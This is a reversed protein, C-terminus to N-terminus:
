KKRQTSTSNQLMPSFNIIRNRGSAKAQYMAKDANAIFENMNMSRDFQCLGISLTVAPLNVDFTLAKIKETLREVIIQAAKQDAEVMILLFEEGGYRGFHDIERKNKEITSSLSKLVSDGISHGYTDNIQKFADVDMLALSLPTNKRTSRHIEMELLRLVERRGYIGTLEDRMALENIKNLASNLRTILQGSLLEFITVLALIFVMLILSSLFYVLELNHLIPKFSIGNLEALYIAIIAVISLSAWILGLGKSGGTLALIPCVVMWLMMPSSTGGSRFTILISLCFATISLAERVLIVGIRTNPVLILTGCIATAGLCANSLVPDGLLYYVGAFLPCIIMGLIFALSTLQSRLVELGVSAQDGKKFALLKLDALVRSGM